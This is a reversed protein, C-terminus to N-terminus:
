GTSLTSLDTRLMNEGILYVDGAGMTILLDNQICNKLFYKEAEEFSSFYHADKGLKILEDVIDKSSIEGLDPERAAYIDVLAVVDPSTLSDILEQKLLKTRTYTHPQFVVYLKNYNTNKVSKLTAEIETPHHAYDDIITFGNIRGKYEYRRVAGTFAEIAEKIKGPTINLYTATAVAALCNLVNHEGLIKTNLELLKEGKYIVDFSVRGNNDFRINDGYFDSNKLGYTIVRCNLGETIENFGNTDGYIVLAGDPKINQAFEKFSCIIHELDKFYDLHDPEVNLIVGVYPFFKLFSDYYECAEAVFYDTKGIYYNSNISPLIGGLNITPECGATLLIDSVISTTTTKGHSGAICVPYNYDKLLLGMLDARDICLIHRQHCVLLEPNEPKIAATYVVLDVTDEINEAYQGIYINIGKGQLIKTLDSESNDSGSIKFGRALLTEALGSMSIGGIGIFHIHKYQNLKIKDM